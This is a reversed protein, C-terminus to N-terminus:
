TRENLVIREFNTLIKVIIIKGCILYKEIIKKFIIKYFYIILQPVLLETNGIM